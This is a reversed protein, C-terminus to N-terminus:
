ITRCLAVVTVNLRNADMANKGATLMHLPLYSNHMAYNEGLQADEVPRHVTDEGVIVVVAVLLLLMSVSTQWM